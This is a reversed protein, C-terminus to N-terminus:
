RNDRRWVKIEFRAEGLQRCEWAFGGQDLLQFLPIPERRHLIRLCEGPQLARAAALSQELPECPELTSVDLLQEM